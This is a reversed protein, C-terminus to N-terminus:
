KGPLFFEKTYYPEAYAISSFQKVEYLRQALENTHSLHYEINTFIANRHQLSHECKNHGSGTFYIKQEELLGAFSGEEIIFPQPHLLPKLFFNYVAAFVENRRADIMPCYLASADEADRTASALGVRLGTYSGPGNVVAVADIQQFSIGTSRMISQIGSQVFGAHNKQENNVLSAMVHSGNCLGVFAKELATDICLLLAM